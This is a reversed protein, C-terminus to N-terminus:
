ECRAAISETAETVSQNVSAVSLTIALDLEGGGLRVDTRTTAAAAIMPVTYVGATLESISFHGDDATVTKRAGSTADNTVIVDAQAIAKGDKDVVTGHLTTGTDQATAVVAALCLLFVSLIKACTGSKSM